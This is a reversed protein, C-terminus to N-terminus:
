YIDNLTAGIMVVGAVMVALPPSNSRRRWLTQKHKSAVTRQEGLAAAADLAM